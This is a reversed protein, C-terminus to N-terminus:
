GLLEAKKLIERIESREKASAPLLPPRPDGGFYGLMDLAAKLGPVGYTATLATNVPLMRLQVSRAAEIRGQEVRDLIQVCAQPAVGLRRAARLFIEPAPKEVGEIGSVLIADFWPSLGVRDLLAPLRSDWNSVIALRVGRARLAALVAPVEPFV